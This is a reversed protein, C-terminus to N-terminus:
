INQPRASKLQVCVSEVKGEVLKTMRVKRIKSKFGLRAKPDNIPDFSPEVDVDYLSTIVCQHRKGLELPDQCWSCVGDGGNPFVNSTIFGNVTDGEASARLKLGTQAEITDVLQNVDINVDDFSFVRQWGIPLNTKVFHELRDHFKLKNSTM